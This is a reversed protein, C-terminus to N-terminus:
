SIALFEFHDTDSQCAGSGSTGRYKFACNLTEGQETQLVTNAQRLYSGLGKQYNKYRLSQAGYAKSIERSEDVKTAVWTGNYVKGERELRIKGANDGDSTIIARGLTQHGDPSQLNSEHVCALLSCSLVTVLLKRM